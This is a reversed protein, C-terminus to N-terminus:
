RPQSTIFDLVKARSLKRRFTVSGDSRAGHLQFSDKAPDIGIMSVQEM